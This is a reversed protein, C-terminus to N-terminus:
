SLKVQNYQNLSGITSLKVEVYFQAYNFSHAKKERFLLSFLLDFIPRLLMNCTVTSYM